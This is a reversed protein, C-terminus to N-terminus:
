GRVRVQEAIRRAALRHQDIRHEVLRQAVRREDVLEAEIELEREVRVHVRVVDGARPQQLVADSAADRDARFAAGLASVAIERVGVHDAEAAVVQLHALRRAVRVAADGVHEVVLAHRERAIAQEDAAAAAGIELFAIRPRDEARHARLDKGKGVIAEQIGRM